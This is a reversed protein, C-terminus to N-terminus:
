PYSVTQGNNLLFYNTWVSGKDVDRVLMNGYGADSSCLNLSVKDGRTARNEYILGEICFSTDLLAKAEICEASVPKQKCSDGYVKIGAKACEISRSQKCVGDLVQIKGPFMSKYELTVKVYGSTADEAIGTFPVFLIILITLLPTM